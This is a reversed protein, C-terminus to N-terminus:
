IPPYSLGLRACVRKDIVDESAEMDKIHEEEHALVFKRFYGLNNKLQIKKGDTMGLVFRPLYHEDIEFIEINPIYSPYNYSIPNYKPFYVKDDLKIPYIKYGKILMDLLSM